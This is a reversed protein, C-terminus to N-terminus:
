YIKIELESSTLKDVVQEALGIKVLGPDTVLLLTQLGQKLIASPLEKVSDEGYFLVTPFNYQIM